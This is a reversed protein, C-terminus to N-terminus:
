MLNSDVTIDSACKKLFYDRSETHTWFICKHYKLFPLFLKFVIKRSTKAPFQIRSFQGDLWFGNGRSYSGLMEFKLLSNDFRLDIRLELNLPVTPM